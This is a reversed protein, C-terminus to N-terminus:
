GIGYMCELGRPLDDRWCPYNHGGNYERYAADFGRTTLLDHMRRNCDLLSEFRGVDLWARVARPDAHRALDFVAMDRNALQFAGSQSLAHGFIEPARLAAYLAMLGGMSAGAVGHVGPLQREDLLNLHERAFPVVAEILFLLNADNCAYELMRAASSSDVLALALPRIRGDAILNDAIHTIRARRYYDHGDLVVLLPVPQHVPPQYLTVARRAGVILDGAEVYHRSIAGHAAGRRRQTLLTPAASPMYFYHNIDGLGNPTINPNLRDPIVKGNSLYRYEMYADQPLTLHAAWVAAGVEQLHIPASWEDWDGYLAPAARGKWVFTVDGTSADRLPAGERRARKILEHEM